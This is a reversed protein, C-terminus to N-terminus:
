KFNDNAKMEEPKFSYNIMAAESEINYRNITTVVFTVDELGCSNIQTLDLCSDDSRAILKTIDSIDINDASSFMYVAYFDLKCGGYDVVDDWILYDRCGRTEIRLNEPAHSPIGKINKNSPAFAPYRYYKTSLSDCLGQPNKLMKSCSFFVAGDINDFNKNYELQRCLENPVHWAKPKINGINSASLGIYLNRDYCNESWWRALVTYDAITKGIEWYLQPVVYDIWGERLWLRIDAYLDDYNTQGAKTRSGNKDKDHNRWVGFPSIGFEVWPKRAKITQGLEKIIMNVNNRRWDDIKKIGRGNSVFTAEDPFEEGYIRYPYFYDDFHIADIDYRTVIDAVIKNLFSRTEDLGPNFYYQKGYKVFLHPKQHYIHNDALSDIDEEHLVIRYPNLWVHVDIQRKHAEHITFALPDYYPEPSLGQQGTLYKSWPEFKSDYFADATPRIQFVIANFNLASLSDLICIMEQQQQEPTQHCSTPWDINAVTAIWAARMEYKKVPYLPTIFFLLVITSVLSRKM